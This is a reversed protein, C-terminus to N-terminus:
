RSYNAVVRTVLGAPSLEMFEATHTGRQNQYCLVVSAQGWLAEILTFRLEPYAELGKQFYQRLAAKGVVQGSPENLLQAAVPSSLTVHEDYHALIADLDHANWASLWHDAFDAITKQTLM